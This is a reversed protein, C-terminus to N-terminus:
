RRCFRELSSRRILVKRTGPIRELDGRVLMRYITMYSIGGLLARATDCDYAEPAPATPANPLTGPGVFGFGCRVCLERASAESGAEFWVRRVEGAEVQVAAFVIPNTTQTSAGITNSKV